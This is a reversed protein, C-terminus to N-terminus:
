ENNKQQKKNAIWIAREEIASGADVIMVGVSFLATILSMYLM